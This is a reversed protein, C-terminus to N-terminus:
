PRPPPQTKNTPDPAFLDYNKPLNDSAIIKPVTKRIFNHVDQEYEPGAVYPHGLMMHALEHFFVTFVWNTSAPPCTITVSSSPDGETRGLTGPPAPECRFVNVARPLQFGFGNKAFLLALAVSKLWDKKQKESLGPPLYIKTDRDPYIKKVFAEWDKVTANGEKDIEDIWTLLEIFYKETDKLSPEKKQQAHLFPSAMLSLAAVAVIFFNAAIIKKM